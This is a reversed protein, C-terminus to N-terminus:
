TKVQICKKYSTWHYHPELCDEIQSTYKLIFSSLAFSWPDM